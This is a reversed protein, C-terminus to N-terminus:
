PDRFAGQTALQAYLEDALRAMEEDHGREVFPLSPVLLLGIWTRDASQARAVVQRM